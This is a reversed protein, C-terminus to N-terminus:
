EERRGMAMGGMPASRGGDAVPNGLRPGQQPAQGPPAAARAEARQREVHNQMRGIMDLFDTERMVVDLVDERTDPRQDQLTFSVMGDNLVFNAAANVYVRPM